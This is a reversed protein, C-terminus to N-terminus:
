PMGPSSPDPQSPMDVPNGQEDTRQVSLGQAAGAQERAALQAPDIGQVRLAFEYFAESLARKVYSKTPNGEQESEVALKHSMQSAANAAEASM